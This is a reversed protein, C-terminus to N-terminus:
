QGGAERCVSNLHGVIISLFLKVGLIEKRLILSKKKLWSLQWWFICCFVAGFICGSKCSSWWKQLLVSFCLKNIRGTGECLLLYNSYTRNVHLNQMFLCLHLRSAEGSYHWAQMLYNDANVSGISSILRHSKYSKHSDSTQLLGQICKPTNTLAPESDHSLSWVVFSFGIIALFSPFYTSGHCELM